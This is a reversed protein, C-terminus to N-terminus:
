TGERQSLIVQGAFRADATAVSQEGAEGLALEIRHLGEVPAAASLLIRDAGTDPLMLIELGGGDIPRIESVNRVFAPSYRGLAALCGATDILEPTALRGGSVAAGASLIPLDLGASTPDLPLVQGSGNVAVLEPTAALAVPENEVVRIELARLGARHVRAELIMPHARVRAEWPSPDDWVSDTTDIAALHAVEDPAVYRAGTITLQEVRFAPLASLLRPVWLPVTGGVVAIAGLIFLRRRTRRRM